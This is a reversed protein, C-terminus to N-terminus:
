PPDNLGLVLVIALAIVLVAVVVLVTVIMAKVRGGRFNGAEEGREACRPGPM